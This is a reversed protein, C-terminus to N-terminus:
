WRRNSTSSGGKSALFLIVGHSVCSSRDSPAPDRGGGWRVGVCGIRRGHRGQGADLLLKGAGGVNIVEKALLADEGPDKGGGQLLHQLGLQGGM